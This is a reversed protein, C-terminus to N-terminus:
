GAAMVGAFCLPAGADDTVGDLLTLVSRNLEREACATRDRASGYSEAYGDTNFSVAVPAEAQAAPSFVGDVRIIELMAARVQEPVSAMRGVRGQTLADVRARARIEAPVFAAEDMTGGWERYQEYTLYQAM